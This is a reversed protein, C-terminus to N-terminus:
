PRPHLLLPKSSPIIDYSFIVSLVCFLLLYFNKRLRNKTLKVKKLTKFIAMNAKIKKRKRSKNLKGYDIKKPANKMHRVKMLTMPSATASLLKQVFM